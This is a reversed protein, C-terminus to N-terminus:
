PTQALKRARRALVFSRIALILYLACLGAMTAKALTRALIESNGQLTVIIDWWSKVTALFGILALGAAAHMAHKRWGASLSLTACILIPVAFFAPILATISERGSGYYGIFGLGILFGSLLFTAFPMM